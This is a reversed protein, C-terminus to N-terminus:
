NDIGETPIGTGCPFKRKNWRGITRNIATTIDVSVNKKGELQMAQGLIIPMTSAKCEECRILVATSCFGYESVGISAPSGCFPCAEIKQAVNIKYM